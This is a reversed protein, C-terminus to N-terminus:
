AAFCAKVLPYIAGVPKAGSLTWKAAAIPTASPDLELVFDNVVGRLTGTSQGGAYLSIPNSFIVMGQYGGWASVARRVLGVLAQDSPRSRRAEVKHAKSRRKRPKKSPRNSM